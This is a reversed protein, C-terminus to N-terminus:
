ILNNAHHSKTYIGGARIYEIATNMSSTTDTDENVIMYGDENSHEISFKFNVSKEMDIALNKLKTEFTERITELANIGREIRRMHINHREEWLEKLIQQNQYNALNSSEWKSFGKDDIIKYSSRISVINNRSLALKKQTETLANFAKSRQIEKKAIM